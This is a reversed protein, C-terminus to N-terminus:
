FHIYIGARIGFSYPSRASYPSGPTYVSKLYQRYFPELSFRLQRSIQYNFAAGATYQWTTSLRDPYQRIVEIEVDSGGYPAEPVDKYIQVSFLIGLKLDLSFRDKQIIRYGLKLPIQLYSYKNTSENIIYHDISDYISKLNTELIISDPNSPDISFSSVGFFYGVSDYSSYNIRYEASESTYNAGIGGELIFRSKEYAAVLDFSFDNRNQGDPYFNVAPSIGAGFLVDAKKVYSDRISFDFAPKPIERMRRPDIEGPNTIGLVVPRYL